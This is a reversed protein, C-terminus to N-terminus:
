RRGGLVQGAEDVEPEKWAGRRAPYLRCPMGASDREIAGSDGISRHRAEVGRWYAADLAKGAPLLYPSSLHEKPLVGECWGRHFALQEPTRVQKVPM